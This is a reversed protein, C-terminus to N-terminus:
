KIFWEDDEIAAISHWPDLTELLKDLLKGIPNLCWIRKNKGLVWSVTEDPNGFLIADWCNRNLLLLSLFTGAVANGTQDISLAIKYLYDAKNSPLLMELLFGLGAVPIFLLIAVILLLISKFLRM